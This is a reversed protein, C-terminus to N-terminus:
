PALFLQATRYWPVSAGPLAAANVHPHRLSGGVWLTSGSPPRPRWDGVRRVRCCIGPTEAAAGRLQDKGGARRGPVALVGQDGAAPHPDGGAAAAQDECYSVGLREGEGRGPDLALPELWGVGHHDVGAAVAHGGVDLVPVREEDVNGAGLYATARHVGQAVAGFQADLAQLKAAVAGQHQLGVVWVLDTVWVLHDRWVRPLLHPDDALNQPPATLHRATSFAHNLAWETSSWSTWTLAMRSSRTVGVLWIGVVGCINNYGMRGQSGCRFDM